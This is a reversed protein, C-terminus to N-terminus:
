PYTDGDILGGNAPRYVARIRLSETRLAKGYRSGPGLTPDYYEDAGSVKHSISGDANLTAMTARAYESAEYTLGGERRAAASSWYFNEQFEKYVPYYTTLTNELERIAPLYWYTNEESIMGNADTKNKRYCYEAATQPIEDLIMAKAPGDPQTGTWNQDFIGTAMLIAITGKKGQFLNEIADELPLYGILWGTNIEGMNAPGWPLGDYIQESDWQSLPDFHNRYEEYEEVYITYQYVGGDEVRVPRLGHQVLTITQTDKISGNEKYDVVLNAQRTNVSINEDVYIYIRDRDNMVATTSNALQTPDSILNQTFFRRKGTGPAFPEGPHSLQNSAAQGSRMVDAPVREIRFWNNVTPNDIRIEIQNASENDFLYVDLPIINFHADLNKHQLISLYYPSTHEVNIRADFTVVDSPNSGAATIGSISVKNRYQHNRRVNFDNEPNGGLFITCTAQYDINDVDTFIGRFIVHTAPITDQDPKIALLPKYRQYHDPDLGAPYSYPTNPYGDYGPHRLNEYVYFSLTAEGQQNYLTNESPDMYQVMSTTADPQGDQNMDLNSEASDAPTIFPVATAMNRVECETLVLSPLVGISGNTANIQFSFDIRAMLAKMEIMESGNVQTLDVGTASGFMPMGNVPLTTLTERKTPRYYFADFDAKNRIKEPYGEATLAGFTGPEVNAVVYITANGAKTPDAFADGDIHLMASGVSQYGQYPYSDDKTTLYEEDPGFLFVHLTRIECEADSKPDAVRTIIREPSMSEAVASLTFGRRNGTPINAEPDKACGALLILATVLSLSRYLTKRKMIGNNSNYEATAEM